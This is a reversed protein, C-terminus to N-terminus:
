FDNRIEVNALGEVFDIRNLLTIDNITNANWFQHSCGRINYAKSDQVQLKINDSKKTIYLDVASGIVASSKDNRLVKVSINGGSFYAIEATYFSLNNEEFLCYLRGTSDKFVPNASYCTGRTRQCRTVIFDEITCRLPITTEMIKVKDSYERYLQIYSFVTIIGIVVLAIVILCVVDLHLLSNLRTLIGFSMLAFFGFFLALWLASVKYIKGVQKRISNDVM